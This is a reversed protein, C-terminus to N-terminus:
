SRYIMTCLLTKGDNMKWGYYTTQDGQGRRCNAATTGATAQYVGTIHMIQNYTAPVRSAKCDVATLAGLRITPNASNGSQKGLLCYNKHYIRTLCLVTDTNDNLGRYSWSSKDPGRSCSSATTAVKSVHVLADTSKCSAVPAPPM